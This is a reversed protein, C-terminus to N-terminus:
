SVVNQRSFITSTKHGTVKSAFSEPAASDGSHLYAPTLSNM